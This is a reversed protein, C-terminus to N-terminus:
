KIKNIKRDVNEYEIITAVYTAYETKINEIINKQKSIMSQIDQILASTEELIAAHKNKNEITAVEIMEADRQKAIEFRMNCRQRETELNNLIKTKEATLEDIGCNVSLLEATMADLERTKDALIKKQTLLEKSAGIDLGEPLPFDLETKYKKINSIYEEINTIETRLKEENRDIEDYANQLTYFKSNTLRLIEKKIKNIEHPTKASILRSNEISLHNRIYKHSEYASKKLLPTKNIEATLLQLKERYSSINEDIIAIQKKYETRKKNKDIIHEIILNRNHRITKNIEKMTEYIATIEDTTTKITTELYNRRIQLNEIDTTITKQTHAEKEAIRSIEAAYIEKERTMYPTEQQTQRRTSFQKKTTELTHFYKKKDIINQTLNLLQTLQPNNQANNSLKAYLNAKLNELEITTM